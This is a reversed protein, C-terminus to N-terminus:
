AYVFRMVVGLWPVWGPDLDLGARRLETSVDDLSLHAELWGPDFMIRARRRCVFDVPDFTTASSAPVDTAGHDARVPLRAQLAAHIRTRWSALAEHEDPTPADDCASPPTADPPLGALALAAADGPAVGTLAMALQHLVWRLSRAPMSARMEDILNCEDIVRVLFLLGAMETHGTRRAVLPSDPAPAIGPAPAADEAPRMAVPHQAACTDTGHEDAANALLADGLSANAISATTALTGGPSPLEDLGPGPDAIGATTALTGAPSALEGLRPGPDAIGATADTVGRAATAAADVLSPDSTPRTDAIGTIADAAARLLARAAPVDLGRFASPDADLMALAVLAARTTPRALLGPAQHRLVRGLVSMPLHRPWARAAQPPATTDPALLVSTAIDLRVGAAILALRALDPWSAREIRALLGTLHGAKAVAHLVAVITEPQRALALELSTAAQALSLRVPPLAAPRLPDSLTDLSRRQAPRRAAGLAPGPMAAPGVGASAVSALSSGPISVLGMQHWAWARALDGRAVGIAMDALAHARSGYRVVREADGTRIMAEIARVVAESWDMAMAAEGHHLRLRVPVALERICVVESAPIRLRDLAHALADGFARERARELMALHRARAAPADPPVHYRVQLRQINLLDTM